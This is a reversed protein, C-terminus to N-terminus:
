YTAPGVFEVSVIDGKNNFSEGVCKQRKLNRDGYPLLVAVDTYLNEGAELLYKIAAFQSETPEEEPAPKKGKGYQREYRVVCEDIEDQTLKRCTADSVQSVVDKVTVM